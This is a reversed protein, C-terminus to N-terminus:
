RPSDDSCLASWGLELIDFAREVADIWNPLGVGAAAAELTLHALALCSPDDDALGMETAVARALAAEHRIWMRHAYERLAPTSAVLDRMRAALPDSGRSTRETLMYVRLAGPITQGAARHHVAAALGDQQDTDEDFVLSEKTPFYKFLTATSVDVEEAIERLSVNDFGRELFLRLATDALAQRTAAKKRERRGMTETVRRM